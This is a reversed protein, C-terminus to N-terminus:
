RGLVLEFAGLHSPRPTNEVFVIFNDPGDAQFRANVNSKNDFSCVAGFSCVDLVKDIKCSGVVVRDSVKADAGDDGSTCRVPAVVVDHIARVGHPLKDADKILFLFVRSFSYFYPTSGNCRLEGVEVPGGLVRGDADKTSVESRGCSRSRNVSVNEVVVDDLNSTVEVPRGNVVPSEKVLGKFVVVLSVVSKGFLEKGVCSVRASQKCDLLGGRVGLVGVVVHRFGGSCELWWLRCLVRDRM